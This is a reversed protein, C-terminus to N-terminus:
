FTDEVNHGNHNQKERCINDNDRDIILRSMKMEM